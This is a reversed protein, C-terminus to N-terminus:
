PAPVQWDGELIFGAWFYPERWPQERWLAIQAQRLAAAPALGDHLMAGYFRQMLEATARDRVPWLSALVQSAGAHFFGRTLGVIGEGRLTKGLATECGSLVVLDADLHLHYVDHLRLFGDRTRGQEDVQSLVLGSLAPRQTDLVGHTAFHVVRFRGLDAATARERSAQFDLDLQIERGRAEAAVVEAERRTWPLRSFRAGAAAGRPLGLFDAWLDGTTVPPAPSPVAPAGMEGGRTAPSAVAPGRAEHATAAVAPGARLRPDDRGFVPDAFIALTKPARPRSERSRRLERVVAASPLYVVEHGVVLPRAPSGAAEGESRPLPLAAFPIYLLAGDAVVALRRGGLEGAVPGLLIGALQALDQPGAAGSGSGPQGLEDRVRRVLAEIRERGPLEFSRFSDPAVLWLYSRPEALFYELLVTDRDLAERQLDALRVEPERLRVDGPSSAALRAEVIEYRGALGAIDRDLNAVAAAQGPDALLEARRTSRANLERRLREEERALDPDGRRLDVRAQGLFDLMGRARAREATEFARAGLGASSHGRDLQQLVDVELEYAERRAALHSARLRDGAIRAHLSEIRALAEEIASRAGDLDGRALRWRAVQELIDGEANADELKRALALARAFSSDAAGFDGRAGAAQGLGRLAEAQAALNGTREALTLSRTLEEAARAAEGRALDLFALARLAEAEGEPYAMARSTALAEGALALARDPEGREAALRGLLLRARAQDRPDRLLPLAEDLMQRAEEAEGVEALLAGLDVKALGESAPNGAARYREIASAFSEVAPYIEGLRLGLQGLHDLAEGELNVNGSGRALALAREFDDRAEAAHGQRLHAGGLADLILAEGSRDDHARYIEMAQEYSTLAAALDGLDAHLRAVNYLTQAENYAQGTARSLALSEEFAVFAGQSDGLYRRDRGILNLTKSLGFRDDLERWLVAARALSTAAEAHRNALLRGLGILYHAGAEGPRDALSRWAPLTSEGLAVAQGLGAPRGQLILEGAAALTWEAEIRLRDVPLAPRRADLSISYTGAAAETPTLPEVEFVYRGAAAAVVAASLTGYRDGLSGVRLIEDGAPSRVAIRVAAGQMTVSVRAYEGAALDVAYPRSPRVRLDGAVSPGLRLAEPAPGALGAFGCLPWSLLSIGAVLLRSRTRARM